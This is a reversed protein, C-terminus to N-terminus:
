KRIIFTNGIKNQPIANVNFRNATYTNFCPEQKTFYGVSVTDIETNNLVLLYQADNVGVEFNFSMISDKNGVALPRNQYLVFISDPHYVNSDGILTLGQQDVITFAVAPLAPGILDCENEKESCAIITVACILLLTFHKWMTHLLLQKHLSVIKSSIM